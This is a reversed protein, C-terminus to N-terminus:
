EEQNSKSDFKDLLMLGFYEPSVSHSEYFEGYPRDTEMVRSTPGERM